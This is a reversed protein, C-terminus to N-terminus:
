SRKNALYEKIALDLKKLGKKRFSEPDERDEEDVMFVQPNSAQLSLGMVPQPQYYAKIKQYAKVLVPSLVIVNLAIYFPVFLFPDLVFQGITTGAFRDVVKLADAALLAISLSGLSILYVHRKEIAKKMQFAIGVFLLTRPIFFSLSYPLAYWYALVAASVIAAFAWVHKQIREGFDTKLIELAILALFIYMEARMYIYFEYTKFGPVVNYFIKIIPHVLAFIVLLRPVNAKRMLIALGCFILLLWINVWGFLQGLEIIKM